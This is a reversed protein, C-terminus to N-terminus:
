HLVIWGDQPYRWAPGCRRVAVPDPVYDAHGDVNPVQAVSLPVMVMLSFVAAVCFTWLGRAPFVDRTLALFSM